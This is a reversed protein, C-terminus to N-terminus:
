FRRWDTLVEPKRKGVIVSMEFLGALSENAAALTWGDEKTVMPGGFSTYIVEVALSMGAWLKPGTGAKGFGPIEPEEHASKGIGHGTLTKVVVYGEGEIGAQIAASIDGIHSGECAQELAKWLTKEGVSLFRKKERDALSDAAQDGVIVSWAADTHWGWTSPYVAGLDVSLIDGEKLQIDRPTGHVVEENVTLCTAWHYGPVTKFSHGGGLRLIEEEAIENLEILNIGAKVRSLVKKLAAATIEGSRRLLDLEQTTRIPISLSKVSM